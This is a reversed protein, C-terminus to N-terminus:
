SVSSFGSRKINDWERLVDPLYEPKLLMINRRSENLDFEYAYNSISVKRHYREDVIMGQPLDEIEIPEGAEYHHHSYVESVGYIKEVYRFLERDTLPWNFLPDLIRNLLLIVWYFQTSDYLRHAMVEPTDEDRVIWESYAAINNKISDRFTFRKLFNRISITKGDNLFDYQIEPYDSFFFKDREYFENSIPSKFINAM